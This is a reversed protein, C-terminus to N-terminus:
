DKKSDVVHSNSGNMVYEFNRNSRRVQMLKCKNTNFEMGWEDSCHMIMDLDEQIRDRDMEDKVPGSIKTDDAFKLLESLIGM